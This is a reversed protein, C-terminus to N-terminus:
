SATIESLAAIVADMQEDTGITIRLYESIDPKNWHRVVGDTSEVLHDDVFLQRGTDINPAAAFAGSVVFFVASFCIAVLRRIMTM